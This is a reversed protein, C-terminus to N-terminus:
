DGCYFCALSTINVVDQFSLNFERNFKSAAYKYRLYVKYKAAHGYEKTHAKRLNERGVHGCSKAHNSRLKSTTTQIEKGCSCKCIWYAQGSARNEARAVVLLENFSQGTIDKFNPAVKPM